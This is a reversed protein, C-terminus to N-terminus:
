PAEGYPRLSLDRTVIVRLPWGPRVRLTPQINLNRDVIRQTVRALSQQGGDRLAEILDSDDNDGLEAGVGLLTALSSALFLRGWHQDVRDALGAYGSADAGPLADLLMSAGDPMILRDWVILARDQGFAVRSDYRGILRAGQPILLHAGTATDFVPATVQAIITGPLDSNLGTLLSAPIITGALVLFPSAADSLTHPNLTLRDNATNAFARKASQLNPDDDSIGGRGPPPAFDLATLESLPARTPAETGDRGSGGLRAGSVSFFVPAEFSEQALKAQRIREARAADEEPAPAFSQPAGAYADVFGAGLDREAALLTAGLDGQLPPGLVPPADGKLEAYSAPLRALADATPKSTTNYLEKPEDDTLKPPDLAISAAGFLLLGGAGAFLMVVMRNIRSVPRPRERLTVADAQEKFGPPDNAAASM